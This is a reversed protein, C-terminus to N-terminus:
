PKESRMAVIMPAVPILTTMRREDNKSTQM